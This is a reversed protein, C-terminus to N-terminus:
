RAVCGEPTCSIHGDHAHPNREPWTSCDCEGDANRPHGCSALARVRNASAYADCMAVRRLHNAASTPETEGLMDMLWASGDDDMDRRTGTIADERGLEAARAIKRHTMEAERQGWWDQERAEQILRAKLLAQALDGANTITVREHDPGFRLVICDTVDVVVDLRPNITAVLEDGTRIQDTM